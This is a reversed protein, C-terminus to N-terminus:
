PNPQDTAGAWLYNGDGDKYWKRNGSVAEGETTFGTMQLQTGKPVKSAIIAQTSPSQSRLNANTITRVTIPQPPPLASAPLGAARAILADVDVNEGPCSKVFRIEHHKIVHDRTLPISWRDAIERVLAASTDIQLPTWDQNPFGEHEIGITHFNPNVNARILRWSPRDVTGAHFATDTEQVYQHVAGDRGVGYHASVKSAASAFTADGAKLSGVIIHIVIADPKFGRRGASFNGAACGMWKKQM